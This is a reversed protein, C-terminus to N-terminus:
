LYFASKASIQRLSPSTIHVHSRQYLRPIKKHLVKVSRCHTARFMNNSTNLVMYRVLWTRDWLVIVSDGDNPLAEFSCSGRIRMILADDPM